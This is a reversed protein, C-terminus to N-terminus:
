LRAPRSDVLSKARTVFDELPMSGKDGEGRVRLSVTGMDAEKDGVVLM